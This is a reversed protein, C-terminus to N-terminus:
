GRARELLLDTLDRRGDVVAVIWVERAAIRYIVRYPALQLERFATVGRERLEPVVRGRDALHRLSSRAKAFRAFLARGPASGSAELVYSLIRVEDDSAMASVVVRRRIM